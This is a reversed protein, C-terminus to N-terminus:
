YSASRNKSKEALGAEERRSRRRQPGIPDSKDTTWVGCGRAGTRHQDPASMPPAPSGGGCGSWSIQHQSRAPQLAFALRLTPARTQDRRASINAVKRWSRCSGAPSGPYEVEDPEVDAIAVDGFQLLPSPEGDNFQVTGPCLHQMDPRADAGQPTAPGCQPPLVLIQERDPRPHLPPPM